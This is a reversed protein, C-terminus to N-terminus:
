WWWRRLVLGSLAALCRVTLHAHRVDVAAEVRDLVHLLVELLLGDVVPLQVDAEPRVAGKLRPLVRLVDAAVDVQLVDADLLQAAGDGGALLDELPRLRQHLVDLIVDAAEADVRHAHLVGRVDAAHLVDLPVEALDHVIVNLHEHALKGPALKHRVVRAADAAVDVVLVDTRM